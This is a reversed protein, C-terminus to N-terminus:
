VEEGPMTVNRMRQLGSAVAMREKDNMNAISYALADELSFLGLKCLQKFCSVCVFWITKGNAIDVYNAYAEPSCQVNQECWKCTGSVSTEMLSEVHSMTVILIKDQAQKVLTLARAIVPAMAKDIFDDYIM